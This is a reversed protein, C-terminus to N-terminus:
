RLSMQALRIALARAVEADSNKIGTGLIGTGAVRVTWCALGLRRQLPGQTLELEQIKAHPVLSLRYVWRGSRVLLLLPTLAFGQRRYTFPDFFRAAAPSVLFGQEEGSGSLGAVLQRASAGGEQQSPLVLPLLRMVEDLTGVPLLEGAFDGQGPGKGLLTVKVQYWGTLRWLLPQVVEVRQVGGQPLTQTSTDAFGFRTKLGDPSTSLSFNFGTNFRKWFAGAVGLFVVAFSALYTLPNVGELFVALGLLVSFGVLGLLWQVNLLMSLLLRVIPVKVVLQEQADEIGLINQSLKRGLGVSAQPAAALDPDGPESAQGKLVRVQALLEERLARAQRYGLFQVKLASDKGDAVDFNLEALGLIRPVLPRKIDISQVRDLRAKRETKVLMGSKIYVNQEDVAFRYFFWRSFFPLLLLLFVALALALYWFPGFIGAWSLFPLDPPGAQALENLDFTAGGTFFDEFVRNFFSYIVAALLVWSQVLPSLPHARRWVLEQPQSEQPSQQSM